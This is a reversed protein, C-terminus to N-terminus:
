IQLKLLMKLKMQYYTIELGDLKEVKLQHIQYAIILAARSFGNNEVEKKIENFKNELENKNKINFVIESILFEQQLRQESIQEKIKNKDIRVNQSFRKLILENWM